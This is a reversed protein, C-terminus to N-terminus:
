NLHSGYVLEQLEPSLDKKEVKARLLNTLEQFAECKGADHVQKCMKCRKFCYHASHTLGGYAACPGYQRRGDRGTSNRRQDDRDYPRQGNSARPRRNDARAFTGEAANRRETDNAATVHGRDETSAYGDDSYGESYRDDDGSHSEPGYEETDDYGGNYVEPYGGRTDASRGANLATVINTLADTLTVRPRHQQDDRRRNDDRYRDERRRDDERHRRDRRYGDRPDESRGGDRRRAVEQGRPRRVSSERGSKRERRRLIDNIMDELDHINKVRVHCLREELGRDECSDLFHQVHDKADRGGHEFQVGANRAYGNLRNLYDCVHEKEERKASYYRAKASQNFRSCYYKIFADSLVKWTRRTKRPLQRYWHLAGDQLSLEFAMCWENPPTHTGKMEYIFARLWQMSKESKDRLGLYPKINGLPFHTAIELRPTAPRQGNSARPRRNDARAFTGEAANRRETDNAAAVHGRDETSAYGDDSYGESYRDDDGSHSEPGYEETDDYGGNYVEPYGGRADASRGANLATVINTLADTLTVRPRYQQDDRRRNDDRYRDERRRDDERHRRDRRYGDRPDESRGGDRRRAVEQGRPRRVSSERGSKRERRRLIDNIMDELDHINKVRVHCLREELGRDECSDLFHEVHDKADRGGHEFQVGANRAYGNLRNLYDCVHEKEERKASYYRAKASQNFRSCYYKIFADSLLKWTRRTKRPLQRYWHLAGDQLSLEFAMCWENPPTHTGKMEYIFARLWQMSKESKDRLGLYPKINGLPLHTAIELRPTASDNEVASLERIQRAWEGTLDGGTDGVDFSDEDSSDDRLDYRRSPTRSASRGATPATRYGEAERALRETRSASRPTVMHSDQFYTSTAGQASFIGAETSGRPRRGPTSPLPIMSPDVPDSAHRVNPPRSVGAEAVGFASRLKQKWKRLATAADEPAWARLDAETPFVQPECGMARLLQVTDEAVQRTNWSEVPVTLEGGLEMWIAQRVVEPAFSRMWNSKVKMLELYRGLVRNAALTDGNLPPRGGNPRSNADEAMASSRHDDSEDEDYGNAPEPGAVENLEETLNRALSRVGGSRGASVAAAESLEPMAAKDELDDEEDDEKADSYDMPEDFSDSRENISALTSPTAFSSGSRGSGETRTGSSRAPTAPVASKAEKAM